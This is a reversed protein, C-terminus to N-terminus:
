KNKLYVSVANKISGSSEENCKISYRSGEISTAFNDYGQDNLFNRISNVSDGQTVLAKEGIYDNNVYVAYKDHYNKLGNDDASNLFYPFGMGYNFFGWTM